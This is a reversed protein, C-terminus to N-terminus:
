HVGGCCEASLLFEIAMILGHIEYLVKAAEHQLRDFEEKSEPDRAKALFEMRCNIDDLRLHLKDVDNFDYKM